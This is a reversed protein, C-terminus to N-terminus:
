ILDAIYDDNNLIVGHILPEITVQGDKINLIRISDAFKEKPRIVYSTQLDLTSDSVPVKYVTGRSLAFKQDHIIRPSVEGTNQIIFTIYAPKELKIIIKKTDAAMNNQEQIPEPSIVIAPEPIPEPIPEPAPIPEPEPTPESNVINEVIEGQLLPNTSTTDEEKTPNYRTVRAM